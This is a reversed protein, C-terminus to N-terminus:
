DVLSLVDRIQALGYPKPLSLSNFDPTEIAGHGSAFVIATAPYLCSVERALEMGSIGPLNVDTFLVDFGQRILAETADEGCSVGTPAHGILALLDCLSQRSEFNDEVVLISLSKARSEGSAARMQSARNIAQVPRAQSTLVHRIKRALDERSYPKSILEVGPDLLGGHVIANQTYGSTFLVGINPMLAKARKALDPGNLPGPMVVDTFLLDIAVGSELVTLANQGNEAKLVSYDLQSLIAVVTAQVAPDDEVVLITETGGVVPKRRPDPVVIEACHTRPLYIKFTTGLGLESYIKVHGASQKVFGYVSCLGLGTGEGEAKTTFFPEFAREMVEPPMGPGNDTVALMVYQGASVESHTEAYEDDLVTNGLELTIKGDGKMADRANIILNLIVNELRSRDVMATWLGGSVITELAVSEGIARRLLGDLEHLIRGLDTPVPQLPQRRAFSLLQSALEAGRGVASIAASVHQNTTDGAGRELRLLELNSSVIQLINNFDHAVGGTLKGIAEMKQAQRLADETKRLAEAQLKDETIDRATAYWHDGEPTITWSLWRYSGDKHSSLIEAREILQGAAVAAIIQQSKAVFEPHALDVFGLTVTEQDTRGLIHSVAPSVGLFAGDLSGFVLLDQSMRWIRDREQTRETVRDELEETLRKLAAEASEAKRKALRLEDEYARRGKAQLLTTRIVSPNGDSDRLLVSNVLVPMREGGERIVEFALESVKDQMLLLPGFHTDYFIRGAVPLLNQFRKGLLLTSRTYGTWELFTANVKIITGDPRTSLYGCPANEFLDDADEELREPALGKMM